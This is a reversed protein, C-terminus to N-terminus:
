FAATSNRLSSGLPGGQGWRFCEGTTCALDFWAMVVDEHNGINHTVNAASYAELWDDKGYVYKTWNPYPTNEVVSSPTGCLGLVASWEKVEQALNTYNLVEDVTGHFVQVKPRWGSYGPYAAQVIARWEAGSHTVLGGACDSNWYDASGDPAAFCGFAVGAFATGAAFVDPYAALLVETMMAGSSVGTVFVRGADAHYRKVTWAVMNVIGLSDGGTGARPQHSLTAPSSVDWCQDAPNPSDPYIVIFGHADALSAFSSGNYVALADGHCWHPTVLVPPNPALTDPVYLYFGVNTPNYFDATVKQLSAAHLLPLSALTAWLSSPTNLSLRM